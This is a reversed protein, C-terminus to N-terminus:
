LAHPLAQAVPEREAAVPLRHRAELPAGLRVVPPAGRAPGAPAPRRFLAASDAAPPREAQDGPVGPAVSAAEPLLRSRGSERDKPVAGEAGRLVAASSIKRKKKTRVKM